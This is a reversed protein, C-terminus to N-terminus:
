ITLIDLKISEPRETNYYYIFQSNSPFFGCNHSILQMLIVQITLYFTLIIVKNKLTDNILLRVTKSYCQDCLQYTITKPTEILIAIIYYKVFCQYLQQLDRVVM